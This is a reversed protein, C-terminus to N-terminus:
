SLEDRILKSSELLVPQRSGALTLLSPHSLHINRGSYNNFQIGADAEPEAPIVTTIKPKHTRALSLNSTLAVGRGKLPPTQPHPTLSLNKIKSAKPEDFKFWKPMKVGQSVMLRAVRQTPQAGCSLYKDADDKNVVLEKTHPNYRGILKVVKGSTPTLHSQQVVMRYVPYKKRGIRQLRISLM